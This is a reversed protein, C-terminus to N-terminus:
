NNIVNCSYFDSYFYINHFRKTLLFPSLSPHNRAFCVKTAIGGFAGHQQKRVHSHWLLTTAKGWLLVPM